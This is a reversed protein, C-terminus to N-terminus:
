VMVQFTLIKIHSDSMWVMAVLIMEALLGHIKKVVLASCMPM